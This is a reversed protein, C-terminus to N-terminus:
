KHDPCSSCSCQLQTPRDRAGEAASHEPSHQEQSQTAQKQALNHLHGCCGARLHKSYRLRCSPRMQDSLWQTNADRFLMIDPERACIHMLQPQTLACVYTNMHAAVKELPISLAAASPAATAAAAPRSNSADKPPRRSAKRKGDNKRYEHLRQDVTSISLGPNKNRM